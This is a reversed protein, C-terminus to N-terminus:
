VQFDVIRKLNVFNFDGPWLFGRCWFGFPSLAFDCLVLGFRGWFRFAGSLFRSWVQHIVPVKNSVESVQFGRPLPHPEPHSLHSLSQSHRSSKCLVLTHNWCMRPLESSWNWPIWQGWKVEVPVLYDYLILFLGIKLVSFLKPTPPSCDYACGIKM